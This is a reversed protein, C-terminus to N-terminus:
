ASAPVLHQIAVDARDLAFRVASEAHRCSEAYLADNAPGGVLGPVDPSEFSWGHGAEHHHIVRITLM